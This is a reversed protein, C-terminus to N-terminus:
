RGEQLYADYAEPNAEFLAVQADATSFDGGAKAVMEGALADVSDIISANDGGGVFGYEAYLLDGASKFVADLVELDDEDMREVLRKLVPGFESPDVPLNYEDAKSIFESELRLDRETDLESRMQEAEAKAVEVEDLAKAIIRRQDDETVAKSLEELVADGLSKSTRSKRGSAYGAGGAAVGAGGVVGAARVPDQAFQRYRMGAQTQMSRARRAAEERTMRRKKSPAGGIRPSPNARLAGQPNDFMSTVTRATRGPRGFVNGWSAKGVEEDGEDDAGDDEFGDDEAYMYENGEADYVLAGHELSDPDVPAGEDDFVEIEATGPPMLNEEDHNSKAVSGFRKAFTILGHQNAPRDVTSVEDIELDSLMTRRTM